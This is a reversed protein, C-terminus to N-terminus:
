PGGSVSPLYDGCCDSSVGFSGILDIAYLRVSLLGDKSLNGIATFQVGGLFGAFLNMIYFFVESDLMHISIFFIIMFFLDSALVLKISAEKRFSWYAGASLGINITM